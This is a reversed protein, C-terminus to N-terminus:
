ILISLNGQHYHSKIIRLTNQSIASM